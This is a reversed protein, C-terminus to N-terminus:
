RLKVFRLSQQTEESQLRLVYNGAEYTSVDLDIRSTGAGLSHQAASVVEGTISYVMVQYNGAEVADVELTMMDMAPNPFARLATEAGQEEVGLSLNISFGGGMLFIGLSDVGVSDCQTDICGNGDNITLCLAYPGNGSYTHVPTASTSSNGDGFDWLYSLGTGTSNNIIVLQNPIPTNGSYAQMISYNADCSGGSSCYILTFSASYNGPHFGSSATITTGNCDVFSIDIMGQSISNALTDVFNGGADTLVVSSAGSSLSINVSVGAGAGTLTGGVLVDQASVWLGLLLAM